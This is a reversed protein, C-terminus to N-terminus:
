LLREKWDTINREGKAYSFNIGVAHITQHNKRATRLYKEAYAKEDIQTLAVDASANLKFEIIYLHTGAKLVADIRGKNTAVETLIDMGCLRCVTYVISQYYKEEKIQIDYPLNAFFDKWVAIMDETRGSEATSLLEAMWPLPRHPYMYAALLEQEFSYAVEHNPFRMRYAREPRSYALRDITLYGTQFLLDRVREDPVDDSALEAIDFTNLYNESLTTRDIDPITLRKRKMLQILFTPTGTAFWFNEFTHHNRFFKGISVPNYVTEANDAFRFGDYWAQIEALLGAHDLCAGRDSRAGDAVAADLWASFYTELEQQTYGFMCAFDRHMTIDDLHNLKSFISLKAVKTVGTMFTFRLLPEAGKIIQYFSSLFSRFAQADEISELHEFVPKDYEDILLVVGKGSKQYLIRILANFMFAPNDDMPLTVEYNQAIQALNWCLSEKLQSITDMVCQTFDIHIVPHVPWDYDTSGLYLGDFLERRGQFVTELTSITLSKGFRRPRACFFQGKTARLLDYIYRTKDVYLCHNEILDPFTYVSTTIEKM